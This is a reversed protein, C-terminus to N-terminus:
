FIEFARKMDAGFGYGDADAGREQNKVSELRM